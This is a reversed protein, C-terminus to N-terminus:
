ENIAGEKKMIKKTKYIESRKKIKMAIFKSFMRFLHFFGYSALSTVAIGMLGLGICLIMASISKAVIIFGVVIVAVSGFFCGLLAAVISVIIACVIIIGCIALAVLTIVLPIAIPAACIGGIISIIIWKAQTGKRKEDKAEVLQRLAYDTRIERAVKSPNGLEEIAREENKVGAEEFYEMYYSVADDIEKRPMKHLELQLKRLWEKRNM